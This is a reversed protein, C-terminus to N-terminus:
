PGSLTCSREVLAEIREWPKLCVQSPIQKKSDSEYFQSNAGVVAHSGGARIM